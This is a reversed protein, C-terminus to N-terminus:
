SIVLFLTKMATNGIVHLRDLPVECFFAGTDVRLLKGVLPDDVIEWLKVEAPKMSINGVALKPYARGQYVFSDGEIRIDAVFGGEAFVATAILGLLVVVALATKGARM